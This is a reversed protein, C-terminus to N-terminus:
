CAAPPGTGCSRGAPPRMPSPTAYLPQGPIANLDSVLHASIQAPALVAVPVRHPSPHHFAGVYSLVFGAQIALVAIVLLFTRRNFADLFEALFRQRTAPAPRPPRPAIQNM